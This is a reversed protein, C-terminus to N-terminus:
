CFGIIVRALVTSVDPLIHGSLLPNVLVLLYRRIFLNM